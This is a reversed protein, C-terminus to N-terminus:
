AVALAVAVAPRLGTVRCPLFSFRCMLAFKKLSGSDSLRFIQAASSLSHAAFFAALRVVPQCGRGAAFAVHACLEELEMGM